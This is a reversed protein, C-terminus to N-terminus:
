DELDPHGIAGRFAADHTVLIAAVAIAHAAIQTELPGLPKGHSEQAARFAGYCSAEERRWPLVKM